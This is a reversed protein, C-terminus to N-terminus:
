LGRVDPFDADQVDQLIWHSGESLAHILGSYVQQQKWNIKIISSCKTSERM